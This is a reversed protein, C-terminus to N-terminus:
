DGAQRLQGSRRSSWGRGSDKLRDAIHFLSVSLKFRYNHSFALNLDNMEAVLNGVPVSDGTDSGVDDAGNVLRRWLDRYGLRSPYHCGVGGLDQNCISGVM